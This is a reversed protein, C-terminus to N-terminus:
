DSHANAFLVETQLQSVSDGYQVLLMKHKRRTVLHHTPTQHNNRGQYELNECYHSYYSRELM